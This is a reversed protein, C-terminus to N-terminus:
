ELLSKAKWLNRVLLSFQSKSVSSFILFGGLCFTAVEFGPEYRKLKGFNIHSFKIQIGHLYVDRM